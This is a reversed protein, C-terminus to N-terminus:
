ILFLNEKDIVLSLDSLREYKIIDLWDELICESVQDYLRELLSFVEEKCLHDCSLLLVEFTLATLFCWQEHISKVVSIVM